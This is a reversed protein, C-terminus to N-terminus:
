AGGGVTAAEVAEQLQRKNMKSRWKVGLRAAETYLQERTSQQSPEQNPQVVEPPHGEPDALLRRALLWAAVTTAAVFIITLLRRM